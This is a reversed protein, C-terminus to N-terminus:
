LPSTVQGLDCLFSATTQSWPAGRVEYMSHTTILPPATSSSVCPTRSLSLPAPWAGPSRQCVMGLSGQGITHGQPGEAARAKICTSSVGPYKQVICEGYIGTDWGLVEGETMRPSNLDQALRSLGRPECHIGEACSRHKTDEVAICTYIHYTKFHHLNLHHQVHVGNLKTM